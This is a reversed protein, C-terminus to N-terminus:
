WHRVLVRRRASIILLTEFNLKAVGPFPQFFEGIEDVAADCHDEAPPQFRAGRRHFIDGFGHPLEAIGGLIESGAADGPRADGVGIVHGTQLGFHGVIGRAALPVEVLLVADDGGAAFYAPNVVVGDGHM